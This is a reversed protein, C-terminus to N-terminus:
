WERVHMNTDTGSCWRAHEFTEAEATALVFKGEKHVCFDHPISVPLLLHSALLMHSMERTM